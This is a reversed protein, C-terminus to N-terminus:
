GRRPVDLWNRCYGPLGETRFLNEIHRLREDPVGAIRLGDCYARVDLHNTESAIQAFIEATEDDHLHDCRVRVVNRLLNATHINRGTAFVKFDAEHLSAAIGRGVGSSAGTVLAVRMTPREFHSYRPTM